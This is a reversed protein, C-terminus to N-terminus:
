PCPQSKAAECRTSGKRRQHSSTKWNGGCGQREAREGGKLTWRNLGLPFPQHLLVLPPSQRLLHSSPNLLSGLGGGGKGPQNEILELLSKQPKRQIGIEESLSRPSSPQNFVEFEDVSEALDVFGQEEQKEKGEEEEQLIPSSSSVGASLTAVLLSKISPTHKPLPIGELVMFGEYAVSILHLRCDKARIVCRPAQFVCSIPM